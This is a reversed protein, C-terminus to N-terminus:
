EEMKKIIIIKKETDASLLVTDGGVIGLAERQERPINVVVNTKTEQVKATKVLLM